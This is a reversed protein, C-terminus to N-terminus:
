NYCVWAKKDQVIPLVTGPDFSLLIMRRSLVM